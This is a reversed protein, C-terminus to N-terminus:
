NRPNFVGRQREEIMRLKDATQVRQRTWDELQAQTVVPKIRTESRGPPRDPTPDRDFVEVFYEVRDGVELRTAAGGADLKTLAATQFNLRGGAELGSPAENPDTAPILYFEVTGYPGSEVFAGIEPLFRGVKEPDGTTLNLPLVTWPGENVRYTLQAARLGIPSKATYAVQLQGGTVLPMGNVEFDELPGFEKPDKMVEQLLTVLPPEDPAHAIGRRPPFLNAFGNVDECEVRYGTHEPQVDFQALAERDDEILRMPVREAVADGGKDGAKLVVVTAKAVPKTFRAGVQVASHKLAIVEAQPQVRGYRQGKPNLGVFSPLVVAAEVADVVPRPEFRVRGPDGRTRGDQLRARFSFAVSSAPLKAEYIASEDPLVEAFKLPYSEAPQGDPVVRVTGVADKDFRGALAYRITVEDGSPWLETTANQLKVSRPIDVDELCQRALLVKVLPYRIAVVGATLFVLPLLLYGANALRTRDAFTKLDHRASLAGAEVTVARILQQSMGETKAGPRNLQLATVLRHGFEKVADEARGALADLSPVRLRWVLLYAAAAFLIVQGVTMLVRLWSPTDTYRDILWDTFCALTVAVVVVALFRAGGWALRFFWERAQWHRLQRILGEMNLEPQQIEAPVM